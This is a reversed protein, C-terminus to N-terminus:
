QQKLAVLKSNFPQGLVDPPLPVIGSTVFKAMLNRIVKSTSRNLLFFAIVERLMTLYTERCSPFKKM